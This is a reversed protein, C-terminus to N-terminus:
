SPRGLRVVLPCEPKLLFTSTGCCVTPCLLLDGSWRWGRSLDLVSSVTHSVVTSDTVYGDFRMVVRRATRSGSSKMMKLDKSQESFVHELKSRCFPFVTGFFSDPSLRQLTVVSMFLTFSLNLDTNFCYAYVWMYVSVMVPDQSGERGKMISM